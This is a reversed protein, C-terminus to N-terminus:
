FKCMGNAVALASGENKANSSFKELFEYKADEKEAASLPTKEVSADFGSKCVGPVDFFVSRLGKQSLGLQLVSETFHRWYPLPYLKEFRSRSAMYFQVSVYSGVGLRKDLPTKEMQLLKVDGEEKFPKVADLKHSCPFLQAFVLDAAVDFEHTAVSVFRGIGTNNASIAGFDDDAHLVFEGTARAVGMVYNMSNKWMYAWPWRKEKDTLPPEFELYFSDRWLKLTDASTYDIIEARTSLAKPCHRAHVEAAKALARRAAYLLAAPASSKM